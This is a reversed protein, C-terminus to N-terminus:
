ALSGGSVRPQSPLFRHERWTVDRQRPPLDASRSDRENQRIGADAILLNTGAGLLLYPIGRQRCGDIAAEIAEPRGTEVFFDAPGGIGFSTRSALPEGQRVGPLARLWTLSSGKRWSM